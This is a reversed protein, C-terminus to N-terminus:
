KPVRKKVLKVPYEPQNDRYERLREKAETRTDETHVEEWGYGCGTYQLVVFTDVTKRVYAM